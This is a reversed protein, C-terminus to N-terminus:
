QKGRPLWQGCALVVAPGTLQMEADAGAWEVLQEGGPARVRLRRPAGELSMMM